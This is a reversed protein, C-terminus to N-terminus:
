TCLQLCLNTPCTSGAGEGDCQGAGQQQPSPLRRSAVYYSCCLILIHFEASCHHQTYAHLSAQKTFLFASGHLWLLSFSVTSLIRLDPCQLCPPPDCATSNAGLCLSVDNNCNFPMWTFWRNVPVCTVLQCWSCWSDATVCECLWLASSSLVGCRMYWHLHLGRSSRLCVAIM